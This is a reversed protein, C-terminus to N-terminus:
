ESYTIKQTSVQKQLEKISVKLEGIELELRHLSEIIYKNDRDQGVKFLALAQTAANAEKAASSAENTATNSASVAIGVTTFALALAVFLVTVSWVLPRHKNKCDRETIVRDNLSAAASM